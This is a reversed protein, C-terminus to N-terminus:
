VVLSAICGGQNREQGDCAYRGYEPSCGLALIADIGEWFPGRPQNGWCVRGLEEGVDLGEWLTWGWPPLLLPPPPCLLLMSRLGDLGAIANRWDMVRWGRDTGRPRWGPAGPDARRTARQGTGRPRDGGPQATQKCCRCCCCCCCRPFVPFLLFLFLVFRKGIRDDLDRNRLSPSAIPPVAYWRHLRGQMCRVCEKHFGSAREKEGDRKSEGM